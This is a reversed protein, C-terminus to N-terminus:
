EQLELHSGESAGTQWKRKPKFQMHVRRLREPIEHRDHRNYNHQREGEQRFRARLDYRNCLSPMCLIQSCVVWCRPERSSSQTRINCGLGGGAIKTGQTSHTISGRHRHTNPQAHTPKPHKEDGLSLRIRRVLCVLWVRLGTEIRWACCVVLVRQKTQRPGYSSEAGQGGLTLGSNSQCCRRHAFYTPGQAGTSRDSSKRVPNWPHIRTHWTHDQGSDDHSSPGDPCNTAKSGDEPVM